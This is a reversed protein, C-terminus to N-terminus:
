RILKVPSYIYTTKSTDNGPIGGLTRMPASQIMVRKGSMKGTLKVEMVRVGVFKVITFNANNGNGAAYNFVPIIRPEGKIQELQAKVGASIGTDGNLLLEGNTDFELKGGHHALDSPSVGDIIQRKIDTTSNGSHGIDVMGRNGPLGVGQPYLNVEKYGDPGPEVEGDEADWTWSDEAAGQMLDNWTDIDLAIPLIGLNQGNSPATFGNFSSVYAATGQASQAMSDFGMVQAFFFPVEGNIANTRQVRVRAANYFALSPDIAAHKDTLDVLYGITVDDGALAPNVPGVNNLGAFQTATQLAQAASQDATPDLLQQDLLDTAAALAAADASRQLETHNMYAMGMDVSFAVLAFMFVMLFASLVVISGQRAESRIKYTKNKFTVHM